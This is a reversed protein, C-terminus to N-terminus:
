DNRMLNVLDEASVFEVDPFEKKIMKLLTDLAELGNKRNKESIFGCFNVRHSSIIAPKNWFFAAKVQNFAHNVWDRSKNAPEFACNRVITTLGVAKVKGLTNNQNVYEGDGLHVREKRNLDIAKVGHTSLHQLIDPHIILSPPAFSVSRYGYVRSFTDLGDKIIELQLDVESRKKIAFSEAFNINRFAPHKPIGFLCRNELILRLQKNGDKLLANLLGIHFHERGHFQPKLFGEEIGNLLTQYTGEYDHFGESSLRDYTVPLPELVVENLRLTEEFNLNNSVAYTSFVPRNGHIDRHKDLLEFLMEYDQKTDLADYHDFVNEAIIGSNFLRDRAAASGVRINGYDDVSFVVLKRKTKWGRINKLHNIVQQKM